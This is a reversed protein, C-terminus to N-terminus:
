ADRRPTLLSAPALAGAGFRSGIEDMAREARHPNESAGMTWQFGSSAVSVLDDARVGVLRVGSPPVRVDDFLARAVAALDTGVQSPAPLSRARTITTFDAFRVKVTVRSAELGAARLRRGCEHSQALLTRSVEARDTVDLPFTTETGVSKESSEPEVRRSDRGWALETLRRAQAPGTWRELAAVPTNAVQEVTRIGKAALIAETRNGVGWLAGVPLSHLFEVTRAEPVLLLGDPKASSSALKAVQKTSSIGVSAVVGVEGRIRARIIEGIRTPPGLRRRAGAVDLFAEDISVQEVIPTVSALVAMVQRSVEVYRERRAPLFVAEPCLRRAQGVPMAAHIGHARAEYTASTVVGRPGGGVVVPRGVLEPRELLEVAAFFSDMDVHLIVCGADDDGWDRRVPRPGRSM